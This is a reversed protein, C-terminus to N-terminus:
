YKTVKQNYKDALFTSNKTTNKEAYFKLFKESTIIKFLENKTKQDFYSISSYISVKKNLATIFTEKTLDSKDYLFYSENLYYFIAVNNYNKIAEEITKQEPFFSAQTLVSSTEEIGANKNISGSSPEILNKLSNELNPFTFEFGRVTLGIRRSYKDPCDWNLESDLFTHTRTSDSKYVYFVRKLESITDSGQIKGLYRLHELFGYSFTKEKNYYPINQVSQKYFKGPASKKRIREALILVKEDINLNERLKRRKKKYKREDYRDLRDQTLKTREIRHFNLFIRFRESSLSKKLIEDPSLGYKKSQVSDMNDASNSIIKTPSIKLKKGNLKSIRTKLERNKQEAAFTKGGRVSTTFMKVNNQENLDKLKVQQFQNDVQLRMTKKNRKNKVEDYFQKMKQLIQKRSRM